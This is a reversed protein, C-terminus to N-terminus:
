KTKSQPPYCRVRKMQRRKELKHKMLYLNVLRGSIKEPIEPKDTMMDVIPYLESVTLYENTGSKYENLELKVRPKLSLYKDGSKLFAETDTKWFNDKSVNYTVCGFYIDKTNYNM